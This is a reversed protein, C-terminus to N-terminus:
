MPEIGFEQTLRERAKQLVDDWTGHRTAQEIYRDLNKKYSRYYKDRLTAASIVELRHAKRQPHQIAWREVRRSAEVLSFDLAKHLEWMTIMCDLEWEKRRHRKLAPEQGKGLAALGMIQDLPRPGSQNLYKKFREGLYDIVWRPPPEGIEAAHIMAQMPALPDGDSDFRLRMAWFVEDEYTDDVLRSPTDAM